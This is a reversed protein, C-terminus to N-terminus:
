GQAADLVGATRPLQAQCLRLLHQPVVTQAAAHPQPHVTTQGGRAVNQHSRQEAGVFEGEAGRHQDRYAAVHRPLTMEVGTRRSNRRLTGVQPGLEAALRLVHDAEEKINGFVQLPQESGQSQRRQLRGDPAGVQQM